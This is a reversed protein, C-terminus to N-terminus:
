APWPCFDGVFLSLTLSFAFPLTALLGQKRRPSGAQAAARRGWSNACPATPMTAAPGPTISLSLLPNPCMIGEASATAAQTTHQELTTRTKKIREALGYSCSGGHRPCRWTHVLFPQFSSDRRHRGAASQKTKSLWHADKVKM